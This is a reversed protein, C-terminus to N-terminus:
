RRSGGNEEAERDRRIRVRGVKREDASLVEVHLSKFVFSEGPKPIHGLNDLVFGGLTEYDDDEPIVDIDLAGNVDRVHEHAEAVITDKAVTQIPRTKTDTVDFEDRIDGVIEELIDEITALGATGGYEDLVVVLHARGRQMVPLLETVKKTEPVFMPKALLDRLPPVEEAPKGWFPLAQRVYFIGTINDRTNEHVPLRSHGSDLAVRIASALDHEAIDLSVMETRPTMIDAIDAAKFDMISEIMARQAGEVVGALEGDSVAAIVEDELDAMSPVPTLGLGRLLGHHVALVTKSFPNMVATLLRALGAIQLVFEEERASCALTGVAKILLLLGVGVAAYGASDWSWFGHRDVAPLLWVVTYHLFFAAFALVDWLSASLRVRDDHECLSKLFPTEPREEEELIEKLRSGSLDYLAAEYADICMTLLALAGSVLYPTAATTSM